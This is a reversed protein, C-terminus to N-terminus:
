ENLNVMLKKPGRFAITKLYDLPDDNALTMNPYEESLRKIIYQLEKRAIDQGICIHWGHGFSVHKKLNKRHLNFETPNEFEDPDLNAGALALLCKSGAPITTGSIDMDVRAQRRWCVVSANLRLCEEVANPILSPDAIIEDWAHRNQMLTYIANATMNTTTEHGAMLLGFMLSSIQQLTLVDDDGDRKALCYSPYDDRPNEMRDRVIDECFHWFEILYESAELQQKEDLKGFVSMTRYDSWRKVNELYDEDIGIMHFVVLAPLEFAFDEVMDVTGKGRINEIYKEVISEIKTEMRAVAKKDFIPSVIQRIKSHTPRDSSVQVPCPNFGNEQFNAVVSDFTPSVSELTIDASFNKVDRMISMVDRRKTFVYYGIEENYIVPAEVAAMQFFDRMGEQEFPQYQNGIELRKDGKAFPCKLAGLGLM